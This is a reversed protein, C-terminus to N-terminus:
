VADRSGIKIIIFMTIIVWIIIFVVFSIMDIYKGIIKYKNVKVDSIDDYLKMRKKEEEDGDNDDNDEVGRVVDAWSHRNSHPRSSSPDNLHESVRRADVRLPKNLSLPAVINHGGDEDKGDPSVTNSM